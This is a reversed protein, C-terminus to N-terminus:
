LGSTIAAIPPSSALRLSSSFVPFNGCPHDTL